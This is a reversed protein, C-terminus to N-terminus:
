ISGKCIADCLEEAAFPKKIQRIKEKRFSLKDPNNKFDLVIRKIDQASNACLGVGLDQLARINLTEQGPIACIFIPVLEMTLLECISLGGPKTVIVDTLAMLEQINDVFGFTRVAPYNKNNLKSFLKKNNACVVLIQVYDKLLEVINEIPGIGFSGTMVLLTFQNIDLNLKQCLINRQYQETFKADVPIGFVKIKEASIGEKKLLDATFTSAVVYYDTGKSLWFSHVGFDTIVTILKSQIKKSKKLAASIESALFHTSIVFDPNEAALFRAFQKTNLYNLAKAIPRTFIRFLRFQTFWFCISWIFKAHRILFNYGLSYDLKYFCTAKDIIDVLKVDIQSYREKLCGYIAEAAKLHGAGATAYVVVIKVQARGKLRGAGEQPLAPNM